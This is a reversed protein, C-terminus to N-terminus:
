PRGVARGAYPVSERSIRVADNPSAELTLRPDLSIVLRVPEDAWGLGFSTTAAEPAGAGTGSGAGPMHRELWHRTRAFIDGQDERTHPGSASPPAGLRRLPSDAPLEDVPIGNKMRDVLDAIITLTRFAPNRAFAAGFRQAAADAAAFAAPVDVGLVKALNRALELTAEMVGRVLGFAPSLVTLALSVAAIAAAFVFFGGVAQITYRTLEPYDAKLQTFKENLWLLGRNVTQLVPLMDDGLSRALQDLEERFIRIQVLPSDFATIFDRTVQGSDVKDLVAKLKDLEDRHQLLALVANRAQVNTFIRGLFEATQIDGMGKTRTQLVDLLREIPNQGHRQANRMVAGIDLGARKLGMQEGRDGTLFGVLDTLDTAAQSPISANRMITELAAFTFRAGGAGRIGISSLSAAVGPLERSFDEVKFRGEKSAMAMAALTTGIDGEPVQFNQLLAGVAPGLAEPSINYATAARSHAGIVRAIIDAPIGIQVLEQFARAISESSQGSELADANFLTRLAAIRPTVAAGSLGETIAIHRLVNEYEAAQKLPVLFAAGALAGAVAGTEAVSKTLRRFAGEAGEAHKTIQKLGGGAAGAASVRQEFTEVASNASTFRQTLRDVQQVLREVGALLRDLPGTLKDALTVEVSAKM